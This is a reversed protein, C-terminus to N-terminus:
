FKIVFKGMRKKFNSIYSGNLSGSRKNALQKLEEINEKEIIRLEKNNEVKM